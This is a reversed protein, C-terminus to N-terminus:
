DLSFMAVSMRNRNRIGSTDKDSAVGLMVSLPRVAPQHLRTCNSPSPKPNSLEIDETTNSRALTSANAIWFYKSQQTLLLTLFLWNAASVSLCAFSWSHRCLAPIIYTLHVSSIAVRVSM